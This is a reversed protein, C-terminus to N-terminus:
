CIQCGGRRRPRNTCGPLRKRIRQRAASARSCTSAWVRRIGGAGDAAHCRPHTREPGPERPDRACGAAAERSRPAGPARFDFRGRRFVGREAGGPRTRAEPVRVHAPPTAVGEQAHIDVDLSALAATAAAISGTVRAVRRLLERRDFAGDVYLHALEEIQSEDDNKM